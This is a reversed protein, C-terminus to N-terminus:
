DYPVIGEAYYQLEQIVYLKREDDANANAAAELARAFDPLAVKLKADRWASWQKMEDGTLADPFNRAKYHVLLPDLRGDKFGPHYDALGDLDLLPM